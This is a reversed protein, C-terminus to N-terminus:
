VRVRYAGRGVKILGYLRQARSLQEDFWSEGGGFYDLLDRRPVPDIDVQRRRVEEIIAEPTVRVALVESLLMTQPDFDFRLRKPEDDKTEVRIEGSDLAGTADEDRVFGLTADSAGWLASSGRMRNGIRGEGGKNVHHIVVVTVGYDTILKQAARIAERVDQVSNEDGVMMAALTDLVVLRPKRMADLTETVMAWSPDNELLRVGKRHLIRLEYRLNHVSQMVLLRDAVKRASGEEGVYLADGGESPEIGLWPVESAISFLLQLAGMTKYSRPQGVFMVLGGAPITHAYLDAKGESASVLFEQLSPAIQPRLLAMLDALTHGADLWDSVDGKPKVGPLEVTRVRRASPLMTTVEAAHKRGPEDNDPIIVVSKGAFYRDWEPRWKSAGSPNTTATLGLSALRDADKEGEVVIVEDSAVVQPLRYPVRDVGDLNWTVRGDPALRRQRFAKPRYRVVEFLTVSDTEDRYPYVAEEIPEASQPEEDFLDTPALGMTAVVDRWDCGAHCYLVTKGDAEDIRLSPAKDDHAPCRAIWGAGKRQPQLTALAASFAPTM